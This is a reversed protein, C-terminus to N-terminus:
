SAQYHVRAVRRIIIIVGFGLIGVSWWQIVSGQEAVSM